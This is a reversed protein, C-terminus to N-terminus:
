KQPMCYQTGQPSIKKYMGLLAWDSEFLALLVKDFINAGVKVKISSAKKGFTTPYITGQICLELGLKVKEMQHKQRDSYGSANITNRMQRDNAAFYKNKAEKTDIHLTKM